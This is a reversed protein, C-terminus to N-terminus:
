NKKRPTNKIQKSSKIKKINDKTNIGTEIIKNVIDPNLKDETKPLKNVDQLVQPAVKRFVDKINEIQEPTADKGKSLKYLVPALSEIFDIQNKTTKTEPNLNINLNKEIQVFRNEYEEKLKRIEDHDKKMDEAFRRAHELRSTAETLKEQIEQNEIETRQTLKKHEIELTEYNKQKTSEAHIIKRLEEYSSLDYQIRRTPLQAVDWGFFTAMQSDSYLLGGDKTRKGFMISARTARFNQPSLQKIREESFKAKRLDTELKSNIASPRRFPKGYNKNSESFWLPNNKNTKNRHNRLWYLIHTPTECFAITRPITKSEHITMEYGTEIETFDQIRQCLENYEKTSDNVIDKEKGIPEGNRFGCLYYMEWMAKSQISIPSNILQEYEERTIFQKKKEEQTMSKRKKSKAQHIFWKMTKYRERRELEFAYQYFNNLHTAYRDKSSIEPIEKENSFFEQLEQKSLEKINKPYFYKCIKRVSNIELKITGISKNDLPILEQSYDILLKKNEETIKDWLIPNKIWEEIFERKSTM